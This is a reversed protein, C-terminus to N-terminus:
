KPRIDPGKGGPTVLLSSETLHEQRPSLTVRFQGTANILLARLLPRYAFPAPRAQLRAIAVQFEFRKAEFDPDSADPFKFGSSLLVTAIEPGTAM